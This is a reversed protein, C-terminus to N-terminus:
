LDLYIPSETESPFTEDSDEVLFAKTRHQVNAEEYFNKELLVKTLLIEM